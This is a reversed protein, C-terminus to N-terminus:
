KRWKQELKVNVCIIKWHQVPHIDDPTELWLFNLIEKKTRKKIKLQAMRM